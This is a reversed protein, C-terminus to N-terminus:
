MTTSPASQSKCGFTRSFAALTSLSVESLYLNSTCILRHRSKVSAHLTCVLPALISCPLNASSEAQNHRECKALLQPAHFLFLLVPTSRRYGRNPFHFLTRSRTIHKRFHNLSATENAIQRTHCHFSSKVIREVTELRSAALHRCSAM